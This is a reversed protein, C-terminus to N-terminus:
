ESPEWWEADANAFASMTERLDALFLPDQAALKMKALKDADNTTRSRQDLLEKVLAFECGHIGTDREKPALQDHNARQRVHGFLLDHAIGALGIKWWGRRGTGRPTFGPTGQGFLDNAQDLPGIGLELYTNTSLVSAFWGTDVEAM